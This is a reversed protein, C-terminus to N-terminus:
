FNLRMGFTIFRMYNQTVATVTGFTTSTPNTNANQWHQRNLVNQADVRLQVTRASGVRLSRTVSMNLFSLAQGRVDDVRFPFQRKQFAAPTKAPDKEFGADVNFWRDLTPNDAAIDDLDGYFFLNTNWDLLAGPQYDYNGALQWGGAIAALVGGDNLFARGAGFPLDYAASATIRYPRGGNSGQWLTPERDYEEVIRNERVSNASFSFVGTLGNAFRRNLVVELSHVKVIGVPVNAFMLGNGASMQPFSRLLRNRQTTQQTFFTNGALRSYLAPNSTTLFDFNQIRFPNSVQATLFANATTNRENSGNWYEEPLYDARITRDIRDSYSGNYAVELGLNRALERQVSVRWRQQRAHERNLNQDTYTTGLLTDAGLSSGIPTDFRSGDARVPFPDGQGANVNYVFTRGLDASNGTVTSVGYGTQYSVVTGNAVDGANLTDYYLGWGGKLVMREGLKYAASVRPMWMAQGKWSAPQGPDTAFLSGGRVSISPLMGPTSAVGSALYAAEAAQSISTLADPEFGVLMSDDKERIGDEYEFRLGANLTLNRTVRWSDQAFTGVYHNYLSADVQDDLQITTPVGLMFAALSLGIDSPTLLAEDSAQRTYDRTFTLLGSANGGAMRGRIARRVDVGGRLTHAGRVQTANFQGQVNTTEDSQRNVDKSLQQYFGNGGSGIIVRPIQCVGKSECFQDLYSPLSFDTPKYKTLEHNKDLTYFKNASLQTDLVTQGFARTWNGTYSWTYRDRDSDHLGRFEPTPSEFTWDDVDEHYRSGSGRLFLRDASSLNYDLRLGFLHSVPISPEAGRYYNGQPQQGQEVFNQNAKPAAAAYLGFLKNRYTGDPNFIRDRPIVNNPFPTRIVRNPNVPDPRATLPDYIIYQNPNPLRLLDSFDGQLHMDNAPVTNNGQNRGPISDSVYSYNAFFFAKGRGDVLKPIHLPGGLTFASNHSRGAKFAELAVDNFTQKQQVNLANLRNTWYQYNITGRTVNTGARTMMSIQNGLGHGNSADFNSTEVRMEQVMDANPSTSLQRNFGANTAGDITYTNSGVGGISTGSAESPGTVFGQSMPPQDADPNVGPAFRALGVPMNSFMPLANIQQTDFNAGSSVTTTDLVPAVGTVTVQESINGVELTFPMNVQQGVALAVGDRTVTKFGAMEVVIRYNGPRLLPAEFYGTNNTGFTQTTNTDVNTIRVTAGPVVGQADQVTGSINGRTEQAAAAVVGLVCVILVSLLKRM